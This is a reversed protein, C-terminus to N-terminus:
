VWYTITFVMGVGSGMWGGTDPIVATSAGETITGAVATNAVSERGVGAWRGGAAAATFPLTLVTSTTATGITTITLDWTATVQRGIKTYSRTGSASTFTGSGASIGSAQSIAADNLEEYDDLTNADSSANPTAPFKYQGNLTNPIPASPVYVLCVVNDANDQVFLARDNAATTINAGGPLALTTANHTLTLAGDFILWAWRGDIADTFDIDTITTTGTVHYLHSTGVFVTGASAVATGKSDAESVTADAQVISSAVIAASSRVFTGVKRSLSYNTPMTPALSNESFIVDCVGTDTRKIVYVYYTANAISGTDLGGQNDGVSWSADLRKTLDASLEIFESNTRDIAIGAGVNIDNTADGADSTVTLGYIFGSFIGIGAEAIVDLAESAPQASGAVSPIQLPDVTQVTVGASTKLVIKYDDTGSLYIPAFLGAADAVVPQAHPTAATSNQYVTLDTTTGAQYFYLLAGALPNGSSDQAQFHPEFIPAM